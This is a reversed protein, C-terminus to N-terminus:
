SARGPANDCSMDQACYHEVCDRHEACLLEVVEAQALAVRAMFFFGLGALIVLILAAIRDVPTPRARPNHEAYDDPATTAPPTTPPHQAYKM